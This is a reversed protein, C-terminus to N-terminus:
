PQRNRTLKRTERSFGPPFCAPSTEGTHRSMKTEADSSTTPCQTGTPRPPTQDQELHRPTLFLPETTVAIHRRSPTQSLIPLTPSHGCLKRFKEMLARNDFFSRCRRPKWPPHAVHVQHRPSMSPLCSAGGVWLVRLLAPCSPSGWHHRTGNVLLQLMSSMVSISMMAPAFTRATSISGDRKSRRLSTLHGQHCVERWFTWCSPNWDM